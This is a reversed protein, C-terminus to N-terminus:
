ILSIRFHERKGLNGEAALLALIPRHCDGVIAAGDKWVM